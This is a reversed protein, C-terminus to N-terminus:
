ARTGSGTLADDGLVAVLLAGGGCRTTRPRPATPVTAQTLRRGDPQIWGPLVLSERDM